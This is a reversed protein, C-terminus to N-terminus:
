EASGEVLKVHGASFVQEDTTADIGLWRQGDWMKSWAHYRPLVGVCLRSVGVRTGREVRVIACYIDKKGTAPSLEVVTNGPNLVTNGAIRVV